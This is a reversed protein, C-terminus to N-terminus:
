GAVFRIRAGGARSPEIDITDRALLSLEYPGEGRTDLHQQLPGSRTPAALDIRHDAVMYYVGDGDELNKLNEGSPAERGLLANYRQTAADIDRVAVVLSRIGRVTNEHDAADAPVRLGRDSVDQIVFPLAGTNEGEAMASKWSLQQGDPRSRQGPHPGGLKVGRTDADAILADVNADGLAFDILGGGTKLYKYWRHTDGSSEDPEEYFAILELYSGDHFPILANHTFRAHKGGPTVTFGLDTYQQIARDLDDVLIVVHDIGTPM